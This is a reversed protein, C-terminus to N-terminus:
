RVEDTKKNNEIESLAKAISAGVKINNKVFGVNSKLSRGGTLELIRNLLYPTIAKGKIGEQEASVIAREIVGNIDAAPIEYEAPVPICFLLGSQLQLLSNTHIVAAAEKPTEFNFPSPIGSDRSYFAPLNVGKPGYTSVHVGKTELYEFTKDLDLIAKAGASVVAVPTRGLEELDASIDMTAESGRHVGGLGGTAFVRIGAMHALIMTGAITTGGTVGHAVAYALDRRSVKIFSEDKPPQCLYEIEEDTAGVTPRGKVLAITAPVAGEARIIKNLEHAMELNHPYPIGHTLITSELAVVPKNTQVAERVEADITICSPPPLSTHTRRNSARILGRLRM